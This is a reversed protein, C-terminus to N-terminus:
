RPRAIRRRFARRAAVATKLDSSLYDFLASLREATARSLHHELGCADDEAV